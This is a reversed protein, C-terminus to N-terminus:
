RTYAPQQSAPVGVAATSNEQTDDGTPEHELVYDANLHESTQQRFNNSNRTRRKLDQIWTTIDRSAELARRWNEDNTNQNMRATIEREAESLILKISTRSRRGRFVRENQDKWLAKTTAAIVQLLASNTRLGTLATDLTRLFPTQLNLRVSTSQLTKQLQVWTSKSERCDWILVIVTEIDGHTDIRENYRDWADYRKVILSLQPASISLPLEIPGSGLTLKERAKTWGKLLRRTTPSDRCPFSPLLLLGEEPTWDRCQCGFARKQLDTKIFFKMMQAWEANSGDMLRAVFKLKLAQSVQKFPILGLGGDWKTQTIQDWAVLALKAKGDKNSEWLFNQCISELQQYGEDRLGINLFHYTPIARLIHRLLMVRGPWTIFKHSWHALKRVLKEAIDRVHDDEQLKVGARCRLYTIHEQQKVIQCGSDILWQPAETLAIPIVASKTINLRASSFNEFRSVTRTLSAFNEQSPTTAGRSHQDGIIKRGARRKSSGHGVLGKLLTIFRSDFKMAQLTRWLYNHDVRDFAKIFDLKCFLSPQNTKEALEQSLQLCLINISIFRGEVFGTQEEDVLKPILKKLRDALLRSIIRYAIPLLSIPRWNKLRHKESNKPLLKIIAMADREGLRGTQWFFSILAMCGEEIWEWNIQIVESTVGDIGSSKGKPLRKVLNRIEELNPPTILDENERETVHREITNLAVQEDAEHGEPLEEQTFLNKYFSFIEHLIDDEDTLEEGEDTILRKMKEANHKPRLMAFFYKTPAEGQHLWTARSRRRAAQNSSTELAKVEQELKRYAEGAAESRDGDILERRTTDLQDKLIDLKSKRSQLENRIDKYVEQVQGWAMTWAVTPINSLKWGEQWASKVRDKFDPDQLSEEDMKTYSGRKKKRGETQGTAKAEQPGYVSAVGETGLTTQVEAWAVTGDGRVGSRTVTISPHILLVTGGRDSTTYDIVTHALPKVQKIRFELNQEGAKLEHMALIRIKKGAGKMWNQVSKVKNAEGLGQINWTAVTLEHEQIM